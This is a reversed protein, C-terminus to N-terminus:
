GLLAARFRDADVRFIEHVEGDVMVVPVFERWRARTEDDVAALDRAAWTVGLDDCVTGVVSCADVCLHCGDTVLVVVREGGAPAHGDGPRADTV